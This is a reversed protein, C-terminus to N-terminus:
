TKRAASRRIAENIEAISREIAADDLEEVQTDLVSAQITSAFVGDMISDTSVGHTSEFADPTEWELAVVTVNDSHEGATKLALEVLDPVADAVAKSALHSVIDGEGIAGWLGDSCLLIKDGQQLTVPGTVDFVPKSPSGLCTFLINRNIRELRQVLASNNAAAAGAQQELYSHDRTRTLLEGNRVVYLRSDGCHVWTASSGQVIAAVLTTRPTDLMGKESAYRIIQHHAAMLATSLFETVDQVIPRAEKQYLASITQLALQAAVEGEPHGGMGDALVFLGSERTYCYGMRDENKERGGKRSIQFVSFKM